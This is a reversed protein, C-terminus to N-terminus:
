SDHAEDTVKGLEELTVNELVHDLAKQLQQTFYKRLMQAM